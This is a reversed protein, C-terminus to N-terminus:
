KELNKLIIQCKDKWLKKYEDESEIFRSKLDAISTLGLELSEEALIQYLISENDILECIVDVEKIGKEFLYYLRHHGDISFIKNKYEIVYINGYDLSNKLRNKM